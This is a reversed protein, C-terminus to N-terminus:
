RTSSLLVRKEEMDVEEKKILKMPRPNEIVEQSVRPRGKTMKNKEERQPTDM